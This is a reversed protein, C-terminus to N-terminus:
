GAHELGLSNLSASSVWRNCNSSNFAVGTQCIGKWSKPVPGMGEDSFSKSEPWVGLWFWVWWMRDYINGKDVQHHHTDICVYMCIYIYIYCVCM